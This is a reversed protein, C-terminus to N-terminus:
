DADASKVREPAAAPAEHWPVGSSVTQERFLALARPDTFFEPRGVAVLRAMWPLFTATVIAGPRVRKAEAAGLKELLHLTLPAGELPDWVVLRERNAAQVVFVGRRRETEWRLAQGREEDSLGSTECFNRLVSRGDAASGPLCLVDQTARAQDEPPVESREPHAEIVAGYHDRGFAALSELIAGVQRRWAVLEPRTAQAAAKKARAQKRRKSRRRAM